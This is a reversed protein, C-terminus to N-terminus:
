LSRRKNLEECIQSAVEDISDRDVKTFSIGLRVLMDEIKQDLEVSEQFTHIRGETEFDTTNREVFYNINDYSDAFSKAKLEFANRDEPNKSKYYAAILILPSDAIVVDVMDSGAFINLRYQQDKLLRTQFLDTGSLKVISERAVRPDLIHNSASYVYDKAVESVYEAHVGRKKLEVVLSMAMITKGAGPGAFLNVVVPNNM